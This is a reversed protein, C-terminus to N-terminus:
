KVTVDWSDEAEGVRVWLKYMGHPTSKEKFDLKLLFNNGSKTWDGVAHPTVANGNADALWAHIVCKEPEAGSLYVRLVPDKIDKDDGVRWTNMYLTVDRDGMRKKDFETLTGYKDDQLAEGGGFSSSEPKDTSKETCGIALFSSFLVAFLITAFKM